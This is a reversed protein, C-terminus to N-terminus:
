AGSDAADRPTDAREAAPNRRYDANRAFGRRRAKAPLRLGLIYTLGKHVYRPRCPPSSMSTTTPHLPRGQKALQSLM